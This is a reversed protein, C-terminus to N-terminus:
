EPKTLKIVGHPIETGNVYLRRKVDITSPSPHRVIKQLVITEVKGNGWVFELQHEATGGGYLEGFCLRSTDQGESAYTFGYFFTPLARLSERTYEHKFKYVKGKYKISLSELLATRETEDILLLNNGSKDQLEFILNESPIDWVWGEDEEQKGCSFLTVLALFLLSVRRAISLLKDM